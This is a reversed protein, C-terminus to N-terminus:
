ATHAVGRTHTDVLDLLSLSLLQVTGFASVTITSAAAPTLPLADLLENLDDRHHVDLHAHKFLTRFASRPLGTRAVMAELADVAPPHGELVAIYGLLAVPHHHHLYYYQAGVAAAVLPSPVRALVTRRPVGLVELDDLLWEDHHREERIHHSLYGAVADAVPDSPTRARAQALGAEMLPVSARIACHVWFLYEPFLRALDPANWLADSAAQMHGGVLQLKRRLVQSYPIVTM